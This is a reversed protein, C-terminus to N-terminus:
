ASSEIRHQPSHAPFSKMIRNTLFYNQFHAFFSVILISLRAVSWNGKPLQQIFIPHNNWDDLTVIRLSELVLM